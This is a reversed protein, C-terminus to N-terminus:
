SVRSTGVWCLQIHHRAKIKQKLSALRIELITEPSLLFLVLLFEVGFEFYLMLQFELCNLYTIIKLHIKVVYILYHIHFYAICWSADYVSNNLADIVTRM